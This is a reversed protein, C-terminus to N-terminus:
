REIGRPLLSAPDRAEGDRRLEFHLHPGTSQGTTGVRGILNGSRLTKRLDVLTEQLHGYISKWGGEHEIIIYRGYVPDEGVAIVKGDRSAYVESGEPAALDLGEHVKMTGTVPNRRFGYSSSIRFQALPFRFAANLFFARETATFDAGPYFLFARANGQIRLSIKNVRLDSRSSAILRELDSEPPDSIFLGPASPLLLPASLPFIEPKDIRNITAISAYPVLCRAALSFIDDGKNSTYVYVTLSAIIDKEIKEQKELSALRRRAAEVDSQYQVFGPDGADLRTITPQLNKAEEANM